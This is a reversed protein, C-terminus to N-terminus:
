WVPHLNPLKNLIFVGTSYLAIAILKSTKYYVLLAIAKKCISAIAGFMGWVGVM